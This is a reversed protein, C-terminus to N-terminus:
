TVITVLEGAGSGTGWVPVATGKTVGGHGQWGYAGSGNGTGQGPQETGSAGMEAVMGTGTECLCSQAANFVVLRSTKKGAASQSASRAHSWTTRWCNPM